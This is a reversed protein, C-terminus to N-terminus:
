RTFSGLHSGRLRALMPITHLAVGSRQALQRTGKAFLISVTLDVGNEDHARTLRRSACVTSSYNYCSSDLHLASSRAVAALGQPMANSSPPNVGTPPPPYNHASRRDM